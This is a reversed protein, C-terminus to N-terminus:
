FKLGVAVRASNVSVRIDSINPFEIFEWEARAFMNQMLAVEIGLGATFGYAFM